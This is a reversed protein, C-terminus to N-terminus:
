RAVHVPPRRNAWPRAQELQAALQLLTVEQGYRGAFHVGVPLGSETVHLPLSIAPQGTINFVPTFPITSFVQKTWEFAAIGARDQNLEGLPRPLRALTPTLFVDVTEFFAGVQRCIANHQGLAGILDTAKFNKGEEYSALTAAELNHPGPTRGTALALQQASAAIFSMWVVHTADLFQEWDYVPADEVVTHGLEELLRVTRHVAQVCDPDPLHGSGTKTSWAIRLPRPPKAIATAYPELQPLPHGPAGVDAGSVADLLAAADRVTRTLAFEAIAGFVLEAGHNPGWPTRYRSPKLGVLGNCSAPIRISGGGDNGHAVPVIGAAVAAGAGGSSGGASRTLDWPNRVAGHLRPETSPSYAFESTQTTGALVLGCQRFRTMLTSDAQAVLGRALGSGMECKVDKAQLVAEKILFPVGSFPGAPLGASITDAAQERLVQLVANITPNVKDIAAFAIDLLEQPTVDKKAVLEALGLGDYRAYEELSIM